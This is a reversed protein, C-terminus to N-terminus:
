GTGDCRAISVGSSVIFTVTIWNCGNDTHEPVVPANRLHPKGRMIVPFPVLAGAIVKEGKQTMGWYYRVYESLPHTGPPMKLSRELRNAQGSTPVWYDNQAASASLCWGAFILSAILRKSSGM